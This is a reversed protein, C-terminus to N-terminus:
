LVPVDIGRLADSINQVSFPNVTTRAGIWLAEIGAELAAEVHQADAVEVMQKLGTKLASARLWGLAPKGNGEFSNPRTRPKWVGFRVYHLGPQAALAEMVAM